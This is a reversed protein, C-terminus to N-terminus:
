YSSFWSHKMKMCAALLLVSAAAVPISGWRHKDLAYVLPAQVVMVVFLPLALAFTCLYFLFGRIGAVFSSPQSAPQETAAHVALESYYHDQRLMLLNSLISRSVKVQKLPCQGLQRARLM